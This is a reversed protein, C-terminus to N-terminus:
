EDDDDDVLARSKYNATVVVDSAPMVFTTSALSASAFGVNGNASTWKFFVKSSSDPAIASIKVIDGPAYEGTGTGYNVTVKYKGTSSGDGSANQSPNESSSPNNGNNNGNDDGGLGTFFRSLNGVAVDFAKKAEDATRVAEVYSTYTEEYKQKAEALKEELAEKETNARDSKEALEGLKREIESVENAAAIVKEQATTVDEKKKAADALKQLQDINKQLNEETPAYHNAVTSMAVQQTNASTQKEDNKTYDTAKYKTVSVVKNETTTTTTTIKLAVSGNKYKWKTGWVNLTIEPETVVWEYTTVTNGNTVTYTNVNELAKGIADNNHGQEKLIDKKKNALASAANNQAAKKSGYDGGELKHTNSSSTNVVKKEYDATKTEVIASASKTEETHTIEVDYDNWIDSFFRGIKDWFNDPENLFDNSDVTETTGFWGLGFFGHGTVVIRNKTIDPYKELLEKVDAANGVKDDYDNVKAHSDNYTDDVVNYNYTGATFTSKETAKNETYTTNKDTYTNVKSDGTVVNNKDSTDTVIKTQADKDVVVKSGATQENELVAGEKNVYSTIIADDKTVTQGDTTIVSKVEDVTINGAEDTTYLFYTYVKNGQEDESVYVCFADYHTYGAADSADFEFVYDEDLGYMTDTYTFGMDGNGAMYTDIQNMLSVRNTDAVDPIDTDKIRDMNDVATATGDETITPSSSDSSGCGSLSVGILCVALLAAVLRKKM